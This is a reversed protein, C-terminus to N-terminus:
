GLGHDLILGARREDKTERIVVGAAPSRTFALLLLPLVLLHLKM